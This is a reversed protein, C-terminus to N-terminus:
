PATAEGGAGRLVLTVPTRDPPGLGRPCAMPRLDRSYCLRAERFAGDEALVVIVGRRPLGPNAAAFADRVAGATLRGAPIAELDPKALADWLRAADAYYAEPTAWGCTGHAAWEHQMLTPSPTMCFHRRVTELKLAPAAACYRPHRDEAGNPWLGHLILGFGEGGCQLEADPDDRDAACWQPSWSVALVHYAVAVDRVIEDRPTRYPRAPRLADPVACAEGATQVPVPALIPAEDEGPAGCASLALLAAAVLARGARM